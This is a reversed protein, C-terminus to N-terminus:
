AAAGKREKYRRSAARRCAKCSRHGNTVTLNEGFLPHGSNCHTKRARPDRGRELKDRMNDAPTGIRLHAPNCCPPNDCSHLVYFGAPIQRHNAIEWMVRHAFVGEVKRATFRGYGSTSRNGQWEWCDDEGSVDVRDWLARLFDRKM